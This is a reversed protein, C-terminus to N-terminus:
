ATLSKDSPVDTKPKQTKEVELAGPPLLEYRGDALKCIYKKSEIKKLQLRINEVSADVGLSLEKLSLARKESYLLILVNLWAPNGTALVLLRGESNRFVLPVQRTSISQLLSDVTSRDKSGFEVLLEGLIWDCAASSFNCDHINSYMLSAHAADRNNRLNYVSEVAPPVYLRLSDSLQMKNRLNRTFHSCDYESKDNTAFIYLSKSVFELFKGYKTIAADYRGLYQDNKAETYYELFKECIPRDLPPCLLFIVDDKRM